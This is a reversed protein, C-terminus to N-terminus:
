FEHGVVHSLVLLHLFIGSIGFDSFGWFHFDSTKGEVIKFKLGFILKGLDGLRAADKPISPALKQSMNIKEIKM